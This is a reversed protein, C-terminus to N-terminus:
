AGKATGVTVHPTGALDKAATAATLQLHSANDATQAVTISTAGATALLFAFTTARAILFFRRLTM